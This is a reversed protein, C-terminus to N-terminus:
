QKTKKYKTKRKDKKQKIKKKRKKKKKKKELLLRCVLDRRSQLESTHEESRLDSRDRPLRPLEPDAHREQTSVAPIGGLEPLDSSFRQVATVQGIVVRHIIGGGRHLAEDGFVPSAVPGRGVRQGRQSVVGSADEEVRHPPRARCRGLSHAVLERPRFVEGPDGPGDSEIRVPVGDLGGDDQLDLVPFEDVDFRHIWSISCRTKRRLRM